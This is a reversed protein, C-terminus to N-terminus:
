SRIRHTDNGGGFLEAEMAEAAARTAPDRPDGVMVALRGPGVVHEVVPAGEHVMVVVDAGSAVLRLAAGLEAVVM